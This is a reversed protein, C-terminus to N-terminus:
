FTACRANKCTKLFVLLFPVTDFVHKKRKYVYRKYTYHPESKWFSLMVRLMNKLRM